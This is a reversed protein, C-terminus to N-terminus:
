PLRNEAVSYFYLCNYHKVIQIKKNESNECFFVFVSNCSTFESNQSFFGWFQSINKPHSLIFLLFCLQSKKHWLELKKRVIALKYKVIRIKCIRVRKESRWSYLDSNHSVHITPYFTVIVKKIKKGWPLVLTGYNDSKHFLFIFRETLVKLIDVFGFLFKSGSKIKLAQSQSSYQYIFDYLWVCTFMMMMLM